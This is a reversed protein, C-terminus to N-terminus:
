FFEVVTVHGRNGNSSSSGAESWGGVGFSASSSGITGGLNYTTLGSAGDGAPNFPGGPQGAQFVPSTFFLGFSYASGSNVTAAAGPTIGSGNNGGTGGGGGSNSNAGAGGVGGNGARSASGGGGGGFTNGSGGQGGTANFDGGTGVGGTGGAAGNPVGASSPVSIVGGFTTTGGASGNTGGGLGGAGIVVSYSGALPTTFLKESYGGGGSGGKKQGTSGSTGGTAGYVCALFGICGATPVYTATASFQQIVYPIQGQGNLVNWGVGDCTLILEAGAPLGLTGPFEGILTGASATDITIFSTSKNVIGFVYGAAVTPLTITIGVTSTVLLDRDDGSTLIKNSSLTQVTGFLAKGSNPFVVGGTELVAITLWGNNAANRKKWIPNVGATDIWDQFAVTIAPATNGSNSSFLAALNTNIDARVTPFPNNQITQDAQAM